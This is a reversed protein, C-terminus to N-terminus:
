LGFITYPVIRIKSRSVGTGNGILREATPDQPYVDIHFLVPPVLDIKKVQVAAAKVLTTRAPYIDDHPRLILLTRPLM